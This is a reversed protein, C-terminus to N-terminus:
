EDRTRITRVANAVLPPETPPLAAREVLRFLALGPGRSRDIREVLFPEGFHALSGRLLGEALEALGRGSRYIVELPRGAQRVLTLDPPRAAHDLKQVEAAVHTEYRELLDVTSEVGVFFAPYSRALRGFLAAGFLQLLDDAPVGAADSVREAWTRLHEPGPCLAPECAWEDTRLPLSGSRRRVFDIFDTCILGRM